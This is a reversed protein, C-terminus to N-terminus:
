TIVASAIVHVLRCILGICLIECNWAKQSKIRTIHPNIIHLVAGRHEVLEGVESRKTTELATCKAVESGCFESVGPIDRVGRRRVRM